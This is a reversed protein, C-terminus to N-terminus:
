CKLFSMALFVVTGTIIFCILMLFSMALFVVTDTIIFCILMLFSMALFVVTGTIIFCVKAPDSTTNGDQIKSMLLM